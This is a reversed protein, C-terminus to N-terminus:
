AARSSGAHRHARHPIENAEVSRSGQRLDYAIAHGHQAFLKRASAAAESDSEQIITDAGLLQGSAGFYYCRYQM